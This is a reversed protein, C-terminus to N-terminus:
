SKVRRRAQGAIDLSVQRSWYDLMKIYTPGPTTLPRGDISSVPLLCFPTSALMVEEAAALEAVILPRRSKPLGIADALEWVYGLSIGPLIKELEPSVLQGDMVAIVNATPTECVYGDQDLLLATAGPSAKTAELSALHYHMRSRGKLDHPWCNDPVQRIKVSALPKGVDYADGWRHFPLEYTHVCVTMQNVEGEGLYTPYTGPTVFVTVGLDDALDDLLAYNHEVVRPIIGELDATYPADCCGMYALSRRLRQLHEELRFVKGGFTRLQEAVTVGQVFGWDTVPLIAETAPVYEGNLFALM